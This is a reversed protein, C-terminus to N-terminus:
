SNTNDKIKRLMDLKKSIDGLLARMASQEGFEAASIARGGDSDAKNHARQMEIWEAKVKEQQAALDTTNAALPQQKERAKVFSASKTKTVNARKIDNKANTIANKTLWKDLGSETFLDKKYQEIEAKKNKIKLDNVKIRLKHATLQGAKLKKEDAAVLNRLEEKLSEPADPNAIANELKKRNSKLNSKTDANTGTVAKLSGATGPSDHAWENIKGTILELAGAFKNLGTIVIGSDMFMSNMNATAQQLTTMTKVIDKTAKDAGKGQADRQKVIDEYELLNRGATNALEAFNIFPSDSGLIKALSQHMGGTKALEKAKITVGNIAKAQAEAAQKTTMDNKKFQKLSAVITEGMSSKYVKQAAATNIYGAAIDAAGQALEPSKTRLTTVFDSMANSAALGYKSQHENLTARFRADSMNSERQKQLEKRSVGSLKAITDLEYAYRKTGQIIEEQSMQSRMGLKRQMVQFDVSAEGIEAISFGLNRMAQGEAGKMEKMTTTFTKGGKLASSSLYSLNESNEQLLKSYTALPIGAKKIDKALGTIGEAGMQGAESLQQFNDFGAQIQGISFTALEQAAEGLGSFVDGLLPIKGLLGTIAGITANIVPTLDNFNGTSKDVAKASDKFGKAVEGTATGFTKVVKGSTTVALKFKIMEEVTIKGADALEQMHEFWEEESREDAM